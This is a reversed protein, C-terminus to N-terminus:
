QLASTTLSIDTATPEKRNTKIAKDVLNTVEKKAIDGEFVEGSKVNM